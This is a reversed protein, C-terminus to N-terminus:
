WLGKRQLEALYNLFLQVKMRNVGLGFHAGDFSRVNHTLNFFRLIHVNRSTLFNEMESNYRAISEALQSPMTPTKLLGPAHATGWIVLPWKRNTIMDLAPSVYNHIVKSSKYNDHAGIAVIVVSKKDSKSLFRILNHFDESHGSTYFTSLTLNVQGHCRSAQRDTYMRCDQELYMYMGTCQRYIATVCM